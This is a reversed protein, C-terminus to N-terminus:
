SWALVLSCEPRNALSPLLGPGSGIIVLSVLTLLLDITLWTPIGKESQHAMAADRAGWM